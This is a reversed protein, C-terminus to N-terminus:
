AAGPPQATERASRPRTALRLGILPRLWPVERGALYFLWCGAATAAVLVVFEIGPPLAYPLLYWGVVVIITQHIIYFPFVAETLMPRLRHDRNWYRDALGILAVISCWGQFIRAIEFAVRRDPALAGLEWAIAIGAVAAYALVAM